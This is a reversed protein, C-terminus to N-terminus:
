LFRIASESIKCGETSTWYILSVKKMGKRSIFGAATGTAPNPLPAVPSYTRHSLDTGVAATRPRAQEHTPLLNHASLVGRHSHAARARGLRQAQPSRPPACVFAAGTAPLGARVPRRVGLWRRSAARSHPLAHPAALYRPVPFRHPPTARTHAQIVDWRSVVDRTTFGRAPPPCRPYRSPGPRRAPFGRVAQTQPIAYPRARRSGAVRSRPPEILLAQRKM